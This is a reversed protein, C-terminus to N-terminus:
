NFTDEREVQIAELNTKTHSYLVRSWLVGTDVTGTATSGGFWGLEAIAVNADAPGLYVVTDVRGPDAHLSQSTVAKRGAEVDLVTDAANVATAGTGWALYRLRLDVGGVQELAKRVEDLGADVIMNHFRDRRKIEGSAADFVTVTILGSPRVHERVRM